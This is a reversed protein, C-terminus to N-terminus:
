RSKRRAVWWTKIEGVLPNPTFNFDSRELVEFGSRELLDEIEDPPYYRERVTETKKEFLDGRRMFLTVRSKGIRTPVNFSNELTLTFDKEHIAETQRWVTKYCLENNVDFIFYGRPILASNVRRFCNLLPKSSTLHNVADFMCVALTVQEPLAFREMEQHSFTVPYQTGEIKKKGERIMGESADVGFVKWGRKALMVALTGTGCALDLLSSTPIRHAKISRLLKPLILTSFDKGYTQQWRDYVESLIKYGSAM